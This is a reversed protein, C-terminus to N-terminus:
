SREQSDEMQTKMRGGDSGEKGLREKRLDKKQRKM